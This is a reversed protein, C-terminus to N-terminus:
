PSPPGLAAEMERAKGAVLAANKPGMRLLQKQADSLSELGVDAFEYRKVHAVLPPADEIAPSVAASRAQISACGSSKV